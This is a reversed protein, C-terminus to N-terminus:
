PCVFFAKPNFMFIQQKREELSDLFLSAPMITM